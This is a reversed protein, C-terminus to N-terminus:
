PAAGADASATRAFAGAAVPVRPVVRVTVRRGRVRITASRRAGEPLAARAAMMADGDQLLAMAGAGAASGAQEAARGAALVSFAALAVAAVLPLMAVLEVVAQGREGRM